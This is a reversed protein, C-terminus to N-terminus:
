SPKMNPYFYIYLSSKKPLIFNKDTHKMLRAISGTIDNKLLTNGSINQDRHVFIDLATNNIITFVIIKTKNYFIISM